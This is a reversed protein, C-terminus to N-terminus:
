SFWGSVIEIIDEYFQLILYIIVAGIFMGILKSILSRRLAPEDSAHVIKVITTTGFILFLMVVVVKLIPIVTNTFYNNIKTYSEKGNDDTINPNFILVAHSSVSSSTGVVGGCGNQDTLNQKCLRMNYSTMEEHSLTENEYVNGVSSFKWYEEDDINYNLYYTNSLYGISGGVIVYAGYKNALDLYTPSM